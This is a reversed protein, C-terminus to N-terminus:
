RCADAILAPLLIGHCFEFAFHRDDGSGGVSESSDVCQIECRESRAHDHVVQACVGVSRPAILVGSACHYLFDGFSAPFRYGVEPQPSYM